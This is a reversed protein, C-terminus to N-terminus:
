GGLGRQRELEAIQAPSREGILQQMRHWYERRRLTSTSAAMLWYFREIEREREADALTPLAASGSSKSKLSEHPM